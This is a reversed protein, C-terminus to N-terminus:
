ANKVELTLYEEHGRTRVMKKKNGRSTYDYVKDGEIGARQGMVKNPIQKNNSYNLIEVNSGTYDVWNGLVLVDENKLVESANTDGCNHIYDSTKDDVCYRTQCRPCIKIM